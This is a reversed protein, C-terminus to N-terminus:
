VLGISSMGTHEDTRRFYGVAYNLKYETVDGRASLSKLRCQMASYM